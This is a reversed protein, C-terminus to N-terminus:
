PVRRARRPRGRAVPRSPRPNPTRADHHPEERPDSTSPPLCLLSLAMATAERSLQAVDIAPFERGSLASIRHRFTASSLALLVPGIVGFYALVPHVPRFEGCRAGDRLIDFFAEPVQIMCRITGPDFHQGGETLERMMMRAFQPREVLVGTFAEVFGALKERPGGARSTLEGVRGSVASFTTSLIERYLGDKGPFHYYLMAKTLRAKRAIRDVSAGAFGHSAFEDMAAAM